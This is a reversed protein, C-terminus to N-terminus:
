RRAVPLPDREMAIKEAKRFDSEWWFYLRHSACSIRLFSKAVTFGADSLAVCQRKKGEM